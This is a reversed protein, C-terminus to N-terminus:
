GDLNIAAARSPRNRQTAFPSRQAIPNEGIADLAGVKVGSMTTQTSGGMTISAQGQLNYANLHGRECVNPSTSTVSHAGAVSASTAM